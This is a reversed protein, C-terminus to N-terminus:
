TSEQASGPPRQGAPDHHSERRPEGGWGSGTLPVNRNPVFPVNDRPPSVTDVPLQCGPLAETIISFNPSNTKQEQAVMEATPSGAPLRDRPKSPNQAKSAHVLGFSTKRAPFSCSPKLFSNECNQDDIVGPRM